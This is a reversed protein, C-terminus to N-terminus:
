DERLYLSSGSQFYGQIQITVPVARLGSERSQYRRDLLRVAHMGVEEMNQVIGAFDLEPSLPHEGRKCIDLGIIGMNGPVELGLRQMATRLTNIKTTILVEPKHAKLWQQLDQYWSSQPTYPRLLSSSGEQFPPALYLDPFLTPLNQSGPCVGILLNRIV